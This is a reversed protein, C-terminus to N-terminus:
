GEERFVRLIFDEVSEVNRAALVYHRRTQGSGFDIRGSVSVYDAKLWDMAQKLLSYRVFTLCEKKTGTGYSFGVLGGQPSHAQIDWKAM